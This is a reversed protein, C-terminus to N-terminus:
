GGPASFVFDTSATEGDAVTISATQTGLKEHWAEVEYTGAPLNGLSFSGDDSTVAFYPHTMIALYSKMWPHVDCKVPFFPEPRNFTQEKETVTPSMGINFERNEKPLGHVNHLIGDSNRFQVPQDVLAAAVHPIYRCGNQDIVVPESPPAYAGEPPNKIAVLINALTNGEGLVLTEPLVPADHKAACAPDADMRLPKFKPVAGSYTVSGTVSSTGTPAAATNSASPAQAPETPATSPSTSPASSPAADEGGGCGIALGASLCLFVFLVCTESKRFQSM